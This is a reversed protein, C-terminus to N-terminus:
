VPIDEKPLAIVLRAFFIWLFKPFSRPRKRMIKRALDMGQTDLFKKVEQRSNRRYAQLMKNKGM